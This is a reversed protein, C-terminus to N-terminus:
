FNRYAIGTNDIVALASVMSNLFCGTATLTSDQILTMLQNRDCFNALRIHCLGAYILKEGRVFQNLCM